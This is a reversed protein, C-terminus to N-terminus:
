AAGNGNGDGTGLQGPKYHSFMEKVSQRVPEAIAEIEKAETGSISISLNNQTYNNQFSLQIEPKAFQTPYKRELMWAAGCWNGVGDWIRQRYSKERELEAKKIAPCFGGSRWRRVTRESVEVLEAVQKDTFALFFLEAIQNEVTQTKKTPRGTPQKKTM